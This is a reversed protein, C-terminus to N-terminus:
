DCFLECAGLAVPRARQAVKALKLGITRAEENDDDDGGGDGFTMM